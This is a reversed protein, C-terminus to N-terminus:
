SFAQIHAQADELTEYKDDVMRDQLAENVLFKAALAAKLAVKPSLKAAFLRIFQKSVPLGIHIESVCVSGKVHMIRHDHAMGLIVGGAM